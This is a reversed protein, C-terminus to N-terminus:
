PLHLVKPGHGRGVGALRALVGLIVLQGESVQPTRRFRAADDEVDLLLAAEEALARRRRGVRQQVLLLHGDSTRNSTCASRPVSFSSPAPPMSMCVPM